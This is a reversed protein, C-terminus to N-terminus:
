MEIKQREMEQMKRPREVEERIKLVQIRREADMEITKSRLEKMGQEMRLEMAQM